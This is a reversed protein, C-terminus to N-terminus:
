LGSVKVVQFEGSNNIYPGHAAPGVNIYVEVYDGAVLTALGACNGVVTWNSGDWVGTQNAPSTVGNKTIWVTWQGTAGTPWSIAPWWMVSASMSYVGEAGPPISVRGGVVTLGKNANVNAWPVVKAVADIRPQGLVGSLLAYRPPNIPGASGPAFQVWVLEGSGEDVAVYSSGGGVATSSNFWTEGATTAAPMEDTVYTFGSRGDGGGTGEVAPLVATTARAQIIWVVVYHPPMNNHAANGGTYQNTGAAAVNTATDSTIYTYGYSAIGAVLKIGGSLNIGDTYPIGGLRSGAYTFDHTHANQAHNHADQVHTHSPMEAPTLTHTEAGGVAGTARTGAGLLFRDRLDPVNPGVLLRLEDYASGAPVAQGDCVLADPPITAGSWASITGVPSGINVATGSPPVVVYAWHTGTWEWAAGNEAQVVDGVVPADPFEIM